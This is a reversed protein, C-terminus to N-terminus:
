IWSLDDLPDIEPEISGDPLIALTKKCDPWNRCGWFAFWYDGEKPIRKIMVAGDDPCFVHVPRVVLSPDTMTVSTNEM